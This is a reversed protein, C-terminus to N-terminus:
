VDPQLDDLHVRRGGLYVRAVAALSSMDELPNQNLALFDAAKGAELSGTWADVGIMRAADITAARLAHWPTCGYEVM